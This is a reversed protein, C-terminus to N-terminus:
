VRYLGVATITGTWTVKDFQVDIAYFGAPVATLTPAAGDLTQITVNGAVAVALLLTCCIQNTQVGSTLQQSGAPACLPRSDSENLRAM